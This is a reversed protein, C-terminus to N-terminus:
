SGPQSTAQAREDPATAVRVHAARLVTGRYTYGERLVDVIEGPAFESTAVSSVAQHLKADFQRSHPIPEVGELRLAALLQDRTQRVGQALARAEEASAPAALAFDLHDVVTLLNGLLSELTRRVMSDIDGQQRRRLNQYDAQARLWRAKFDEAEARLQELAAAPAATPQTELPGTEGTPVTEPNPM